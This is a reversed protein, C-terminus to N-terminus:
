MNYFDRYESMGKRNVFTGRLKWVVYTKSVLNNNNVKISILFTLSFAYHMVLGVFMKCM